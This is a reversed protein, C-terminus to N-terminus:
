AHLSLAPKMREEHSKMFGEFPELGSPFLGIMRYWALETYLIVDMVSFSSGLVHPGKLRSAMGDLLRRVEAAAKEKTEPNFGLMAQPELSAHLFFMWEYMLAREPTGPKPTNMKDAYVDALFMTIAGSEIIVQGNYSLAPVRGHPHIKLYDSAKNDGKRIDIHVNKHPIEYFNLLTQTRVARSQPDQYHIIDSM